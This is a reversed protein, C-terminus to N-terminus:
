SEDGMECGLAQLKQLYEFGSLAALASQLEANQGVVHDHFLDPLFKGGVSESHAM